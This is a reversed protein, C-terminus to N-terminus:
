HFKLSFGFAFVSCGPFLACWGTNSASTNAHNRCCRLSQKATDVVSKIQLASWILGFKLSWFGLSNFDHARWNRRRWLNTNRLGVRTSWDFDASASFQSFFKRVSYHILHNCTLGIRFVHDIHVLRRHMEIWSHMVRDFFFALTRHAYKISFRWGIAARCTDRHRM